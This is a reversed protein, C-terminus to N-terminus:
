LTTRIQGMPSNSLLVEIYLVVGPRSAQPAEIQPVISKGKLENQANDDQQIVHHSSEESFDVESVLSLSSSDEIM